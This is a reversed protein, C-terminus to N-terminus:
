FRIHNVFLSLHKVHFMGGKKNKSSATRLFTERSVNETYAFRLYSIQRSWNQLEIINGKIDRAYVFTANVNNPYEAKVLEGVPSGVEQKIKELASDIDDVEFALHALGMGNLGKSHDEDPYNYSLIERTPLNEGYINVALIFM